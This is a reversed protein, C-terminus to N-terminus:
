AEMFDSVSFIKLGESGDYETIEFLQGVPVWYIDCNSWGGTYVSCDEGFVEVLVEDIDKDEEKAEIFRRDMALQAGHESSWTSWGAGFGRSVLVACKGDVYKKDFDAM